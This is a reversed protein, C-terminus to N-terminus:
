ICTNQGKEQSCNSFFKSFCSLDGWLAASRRKPPNPEYKIASLDVAGHAILAELVDALEGRVAERDEWRGGNELYVINDGLEFAAYYVVTPGVTAYGATISIGNVVSTHEDGKVVTDTILEDDSTVMLKVGETPDNIKGEIEFLTQDEAHFVGWASVSLEGFLNNLEDETLDRMETEFEYYSKDTATSDSSREFRLIDGGELAVTHDGNWAFGLAVLLALCAALAGWKLWSAKGAPKRGAKAERILLEDDIENLLDFFRENTM